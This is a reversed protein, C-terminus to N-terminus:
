SHQCRISRALETARVFESLRGIPNLGGLARRCFQDILIELETREDVLSEEASDTTTRWAIQTRNMLTAQGRECEIDIRVSDGENLPQRLKATRKQTTSAHSTPSSPFDLVSQRVTTPEDTNQPSLTPFQGMIETCWDVLAATEEVSGSLNCDIEIQQVRGLKTAILERLRCSAPTFRLKLEPMLLHDHKSLQEQSLPQSSDGGRDLSTMASAHQLVPRALFSPKACEAILRVTRAGCWGPDLVLLGQLSPRTLMQRLSGAVGADFESAVSKARALVPDYVLRITLRNHLRLISDRYVQEWCSGLGILGLGVRDRRSKDVM